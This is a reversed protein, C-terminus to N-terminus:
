VIGGYRLGTALWTINGSGTSCYGGAGGAGSVGANTGGAAPGNGASGSAGWSGGTGGAGGYYVGNSSGGWGGAGAGLYTGDGGAGSGAYTAGAGLNAQGAGGGSNALGSRGGGGGGGVYSAYMNTYNAGGGAGGGGGGITNNNTINIPHSANLASGGNAGSTQSTGGNGGMGIIFGNNTLNITSGAPYTGTEFAPIGTNNSYVYIGSNITVTVIAPVITDWGEGILVNRLNYNTVHTSIVINRVFGRSKGHGNNMGIAGSAVGFLARVTANNMDIIATASLGLEVNVQSLSITGTSPLGM